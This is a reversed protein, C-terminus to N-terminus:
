GILSSMGTMSMSSAVTSGQLDQEDAKAQNAVDDKRRWGDGGHPVVERVRPNGIEDFRCGCRDDPAIRVDVFDDHGLPRAAGPPKRAVDAERPAKAGLAEIEHDVKM